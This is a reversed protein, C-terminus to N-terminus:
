CFYVTYYVLFLCLLGEWKTRYCILYINGGNPVKCSHAEFAPLTASYCSHLCHTENRLLWTSMRGYVLFHCIKLRHFGVTVCSCCCAFLGSYFLDAATVISPNFFFDNM